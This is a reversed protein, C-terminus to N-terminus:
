PRAPVVKPAHYEEAETWQGQVRVVFVGKIHGGHIDTVRFGLDQGTVVDGVKPRALDAAAMQGLTVVVVLLAVGMVLIALRRM